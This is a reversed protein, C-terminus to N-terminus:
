PTALLSEDTLRDLAGQLRERLPELQKRVAFQNLWYIFGYVGILFGIPGAAKLAILWVSSTTPETRAAVQVFFMAIPIGIPLLYWWLINRLLWIQHEVQSLSYEIGTRLAAGAAPASRQQRRRDVFMFGAIWILAPIALWWTWPSTMPMYVGIGIWIPILVLAVGIERVDRLYIMRGFTQDHRRLMEALQNADLTM